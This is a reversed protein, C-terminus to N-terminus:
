KRRMWLFLVEWPEPKTGEIIRTNYYSLGCEELRSVIRKADTYTRLHDYTYYKEPFPTEVEKPPNDTTKLTENLPVDIILWGGRMVGSALNKLAEGENPIHELVQGCVVYDYMSPLPEKSIDILNAIYPQGLLYNIYTASLVLQFPDPDYGHVMWGLKAFEAAMQGYGIGVDAVLGRKTEDWILFDRLVQSRQINIDRSTYNHIVPIYKGYEINKLISTTVERM